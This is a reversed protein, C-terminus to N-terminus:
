QKWWDKIEQYVKFRNINCENDQLDVYFDVIDFSMALDDKDINDAVVWGYYDDTKALYNINYGKEFLEIIKKAHEKKM